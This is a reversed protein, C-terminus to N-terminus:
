GNPDELLFLTKPLFLEVMEEVFENIDFLESVPVSVVVVVVLVVVVLLTLRICEDNILLYLLLREVIKVLSVSEKDLKM